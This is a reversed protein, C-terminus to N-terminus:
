ADVGAEKKYSAQMKIIKTIFVFSFCTSIFHDKLILILLKCGNQFYSPRVDQFHASRGNQSFFFPDGQEQELLCSQMKNQSNVSVICLLM